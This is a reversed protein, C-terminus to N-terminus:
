MDLLFVLDFRTSVMLCTILTLLSTFYIPSGSLWNIDSDLVGICSDIMRDIPEDEMKMPLCM